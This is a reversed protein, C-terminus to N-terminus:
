QLAYLDVSHKNITENKEHQLVGTAKLHADYITAFKPISIKFITLSCYISVSLEVFTNSQFM